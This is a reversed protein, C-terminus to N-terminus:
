REDKLLAAVRLANAAITLSPNVGMSTPFVSADTVWLNDIGHPRCSANLVSRAPDHGMALTGCPHGFNPEPRHTLFATRQGRFARGILRRFIKRRALLEPAIRYHLAIREPTAPDHLVRNGAYPLDELLGVFVKAQGMIKAGIAAPIRTADMAGPVHRLWSQAVRGRLHHVIEGYGVDVGMAQVMGLRQNEAFYLDRFGVSKSPGAFGAARGPWLAFIENLHFMLNRGVLGAANGIGDPDAASDSALLLRPSSLAGAALVVHRATLTIATGGKRAFVQAVRAGDRALHTVSCETLLHARGTALAPEVGASRGDMKCARPCKHGLCEACGDLYRLATHLRYPHLGNGALRAMIMADGPQPPPPPILAPCPIDSLPDPEGHLSFLATAADLWPLMADYGVPWGGTPHPRAPSDDLDHREPRELTAAYFVSSGGLGSGLPAFFRQSQGNVEAEVPDPWLGRVARAVPDAMGIDLGTEEARLGARGMEVFLVSLGAEALARGAVGGGIGTGIVIVDWDRATIDSLPESIARGM